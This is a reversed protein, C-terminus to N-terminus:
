DHLKNTLFRKASELVEDRRSYIESRRTVVTEDPEVGAGELRVGDATRYDLESVDLVGGDPLAHRNRIALVCGCTQTGIVRARRQKKLAAVLIEAASSTSESTLVVVPLDTRPFPSVISLAGASTRLEFSAGSRDAFKGLSTGGELLISALESMAEADGGGNSRLDLIIGRASKLTQPLARTLETAIVQTFADIKIVAFNDSRKIHFGLRREMWGRQLTASKVKGRQTQWSLRLTSGVPGELLNTIVRFRTSEDPGSGFQRLRQVILQSSPMGDIEVIADGPHIGVHAGASSPEVRVVTLYGEVERISLGVNQFKPKWWDFKEEPSYVRTHADQLPGIMERLVAYFEETGNAAAARPRFTTRMAQWNIGRFTPDYYREDITEWVDDFVALRGELTSTSVLSAGDTSSSVPTSPNLAFSLALLCLALALDRDIRLITQRKVIRISNIRM